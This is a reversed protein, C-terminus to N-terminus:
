RWRKRNLLLLAAASFLVGTGAAAIQVTELSGTDPLTYRVNIIHLTNDILDGSDDRVNDARTLHSFKHVSIRIPDTIRNYGEPATKEVLYYTGYPLGYVAAGGEPDTVTQMTRGGEMSRSTWFSELAMIRNEGEINLFKKEVTRDALEGERLERAVQFVAGELPAGTLDTKLIHIGGAPIGEQAAAASGAASCLLTLTLLLAILQKM